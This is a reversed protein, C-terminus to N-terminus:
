RPTFLFFPQNLGPDFRLGETHLVSIMVVLGNFWRYILNQSHIVHTDDNGPDFLRTKRGSRSQRNINNDNNAEHSGVVIHAKRM